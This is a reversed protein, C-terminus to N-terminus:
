STGSRVFILHSAIFDNQIVVSTIYIYSISNNGVFIICYM